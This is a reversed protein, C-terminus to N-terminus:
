GTHQDVVDAAWAFYALAAYQQIQDSASEWEIINQLTGSVVGDVRLAAPIAEFLTALARM